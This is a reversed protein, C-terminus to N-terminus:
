RARPRPPLRSRAAVRANAERFRKEAVAKYVVLVGDIIIWGELGDLGGIRM